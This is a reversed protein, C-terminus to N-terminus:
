DIKVMKVLHWYESLFGLRASWINSIIELSTGYYRQCIDDLEKNYRGFENNWTAQYELKCKVKDATEVYSDTIANAPALLYEVYKSKITKM